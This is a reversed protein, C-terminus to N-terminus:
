LCAKNVLNFEGRYSNFIMMLLLRRGNIEDDNYGGEMLRLLM